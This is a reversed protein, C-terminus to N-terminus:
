LVKPLTIPKTSRRQHVHARVRRIKSLNPDAIVRRLTNLQNRSLLRKKAANECSITFPSVGQLKILKRCIVIAESCEDETLELFAM